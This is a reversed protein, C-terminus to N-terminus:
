KGDEEGARQVGLLCPGKLAVLADSVTKKPETLQQSKAWEQRAPTRLSEEERIAIVLDHVKKDEMKKAKMEQIFRSVASESKYHVVWFCVKETVLRTLVLHHVVGANNEDGPVFLFEPM